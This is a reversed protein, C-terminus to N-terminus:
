AAIALSQQQAIMWDLGAQAKASASFIFKNDNKLAQLWNKIYCAHDQRPSQSLGLHAMTFASGLEAVLEEYAYSEKDYRGKIDRDLRSKHGTAHTYEHFLTSYYDNSDHFQGREPMNVQNISPIFCARDGGHKTDIHCNGAFTEAQAVSQITNLPTVQPTYGEVQSCNFITYSRLMPIQKLAPNGAEDLQNKDEVKLTKYFVIPLGHEGKKVQAGISKWQQYTAYEHVANNSLSLWLVNIGHYPQKTVANAPEGSINFWPKDWDSASVQELQAIIANTITERLIDNQM